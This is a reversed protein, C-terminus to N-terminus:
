LGYAYTYSCHARFTSSDTRRWARVICHHNTCRVFTPLIPPVMSIQASATRWRIATELGWYVSSSRIQNWTCLMGGRYRWAASTLSRLARRCGIPCHRRLHLWQKSDHATGL